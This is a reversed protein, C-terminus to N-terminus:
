IQIKFLAETFRSNLPSKRKMLIKWSKPFPYKDFPLEYAESIKSPLEIKDSYQKTFFYGKTIKNIISHYNEIQQKRMEHLSNINIFLDFFGSPLLELQNSTLFCIDSSEFEDRIESYSTFTRFKFIKKDSFVKSLYNQTVYLTPSIDSIVYKCNMTKLFVYALRGYGVGLEGIIFPTKKNIPFKEMISYYESIAYCLDFSIRNGNFKLIIPNGIEPEELSDLLKLRDIKKCLDFFIRIYISFYIGLLGTISLYHGDYYVFGLNTRLNKLIKFPFNKIWLYLLHFFQTEPFPPFYGYDMVLLRKFNNLGFKDLRKIQIKGIHNWLNSPHFNEASNTIESEMKELEIKDIFSSPPEFIIEHKTHSKLYFNLLFKLLLIPYLLSINDYIIM